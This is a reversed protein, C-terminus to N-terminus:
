WSRRKRKRSRRFERIYNELEKFCQREVQQLVCLSSSGGEARGLLQREETELKRMSLQGLTAWAKQLDETKREAETIEEETIEQGKEDLNCECKHSRMKVELFWHNRPHSGERAPGYAQMTRMLSLYNCRQGVRMLEPPPVQVQQESPAISPEYDQINEQNSWWEWPSIASM